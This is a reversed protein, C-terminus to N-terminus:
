VDVSEQLLILLNQLIHIFRIGLLQRLLRAVSGYASVGRSEDVLEFDFFLIAGVFDFAVDVLHMIVLLTYNLSYKIQRSM